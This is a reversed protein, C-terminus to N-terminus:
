RRSLRSEASISLEVLEDCISQSTSAFIDFYPLADNRLTISALSRLFRRDPNAIKCYFDGQNSFFVFHNYGLNELYELGGWVEENLDILLKPFWELFLSPTYKKLIETGSRMVSFDYGETDIKILDLGGHFDAFRAAITDLRMLRGYTTGEETHTIETPKTSPNARGDDELKVLSGEQEGIFCQEIEVRNNGLNNSKCLAALNQDPEICLYSCVDPLRQEIIAITDGINAGVDVVTLTTRDPRSKWIAEVALALPRNYQPLRLLIEPLPHESPMTMDRGYIRAVVTHNAAIRKAIAGALKNAARGFISVLRNPAVAWSQMLLAFDFSAQAIYSKSRDMTTIIEKPLFYNL